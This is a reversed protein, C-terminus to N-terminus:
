AKKGRGFLLSGLFTGSLVAVPVWFGLQALAAAEITEQLNREIGTRGFKTYHTNWGETKAIWTIVVVTARAIVAWAFLALALRPWVVLQLLSLALAAPVIILVGARLAAFAADGTATQDIGSIQWVVVGILALLSLLSWLWAREVRPGGGARRLRWAFWPGFLFPLWTIGVLEAAGGSTTAFWGERQGIVRVINIALAILTPVLILRLTSPRTDSM